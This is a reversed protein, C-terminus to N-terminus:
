RTATRRADAWVLLGTGAALVAHLALELRATAVSAGGVWWVGAVALATAAALVVLVGRAGVALLYHTFLVTAGLCTMAAALPALSGAAATLRPGFALALGGAPALLAVLLLGIAPVALMALTAGLQHLAHEGRHRRSATEPLLFGGLVVAAFVLAKCAVSVAAYSGADVSRHAGIALVDINQLVGLLVLASLAAGVEVALRNPAMAPATGASLNATPPNATPPNAAPPNAAPPNARAAARGAHSGLITRGHGLGVLVGLLIALCVGDAGLGALVLGVALAGRVLGELLLNAALGAYRHTSQLLGRDVCLLCWAAGATLMEAVGGPGPLSLATAIVGRLLLAAIGTLVVLVVGGRRVRAIWQDIMAAEGTQQWPTVKRVVGVLLASGPMSVVFFLALLQALAGYATTSLHRALVLTVLLNALNAALAAVALPSAGRIAGRLAHRPPAGVVLPAAVALPAPM